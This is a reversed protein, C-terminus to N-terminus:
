SQIEVFDGRLNLASTLTLKWERTLNHLRVKIEFGSNPRGSISVIKGQVLFPTASKTLSLELKVQSGPPLPKSAAITLLGGQYDVFIPDAIDRLRFPDSIDSV